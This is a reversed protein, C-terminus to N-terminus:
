KTPDEIYLIQATTPDISVVIPQKSKMRQKFFERVQSTYETSKPFRYLAAHHSLLILFDTKTEAVRDVSETLTMLESSPSRRYGKFKSALANMSYLILFIGFWQYQMKNMKKM